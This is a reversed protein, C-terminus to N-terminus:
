DDDGGPERGYGGGYSRREELADFRTYQPTWKLRITGTSGERQKAVILEAIGRNEELCEDKSYVEDRYLFAVIDADQEVQGSERIDSMMPRKDPRSECTRNLQSLAMVPVGAEKALAKLGMSVEDVEVRRDKRQTGRILQLYDVVVLAKEGKGYTARWRRVRSSLEIITPAARDDIWIPLEAIRGFARQIGIWERAELRGTRLKLSDVSGESSVLRMGLAEKTMEASAIFCPTGARAAGTVANLAFATKGMSPRAAIVVLEGPKLGDTMLDFQRFGTTVGPSGADRKEYRAEVRHLTAKMTERIPVEAGESKRGRSLDYLAQEAQAFFEDDDLEGRSAIAQQTLSASWRRRESRKAVLRAHHPLNDLTMPDLMAGTALWKPGGVGSLADARQNADLWDAVTVPDIPRKAKMLATFAEWTAKHPPSLFDTASVLDAVEHWASGGSVLVAGVLTSECEHIM